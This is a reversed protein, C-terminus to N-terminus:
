FNGFKLLLGIVLSKPLILQEKEEEEEQIQTTSFRANIPLYIFVNDRQHQKQQKPVTAGEVNIYTHLM